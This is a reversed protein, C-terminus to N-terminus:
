ETQMWIARILKGIHTWMQNIETPIGVHDM